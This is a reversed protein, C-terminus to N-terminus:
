EGFAEDVVWQTANKNERAIDIKKKGKETIRYIKKKKVHHRCILRDQELHFLHSYFIGHSLSVKFNQNLFGMLDDTSMSPNKTLKTLILFDLFSEVTRERIEKAIEEESARVGVVRSEINRMIISCEHQQNM